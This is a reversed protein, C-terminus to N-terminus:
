AIKLVLNIHQKNSKWDLSFVVWTAPLFRRKFNKDWFRKENMETRTDKAM